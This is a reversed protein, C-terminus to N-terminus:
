HKSTPPTLNPSASRRDPPGGRVETYPLISLQDGFALATVGQRQLVFIHEGTEFVAIGLADQGKSRYVFCGRCDTSVQTHKELAAKRVQNKAMSIAAIPLIISIIVFVAISMNRRYKSRLKREAAQQPTENAPILRSPGLLFMLYAPYVAVLTTYDARSFIADVGAAVTDQWGLSSPPSPPGLSLAEANLFEYGIFYVIAALAASSWGLAALIREFSIKSKKSPNALQAGGTQSSFRLDGVPCQVFFISKGDM